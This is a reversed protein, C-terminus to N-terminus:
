SKAARRRALYTRIMEVARAEPGQPCGMARWLAFQIAASLLLTGTGIAGGRLMALEIGERAPHVWAYGTAFLAASVLMGTAAIRGLGGRTARWGIDGIRRLQIVFLACEFFNVCISTAALLEVRHTFRTVVVLLLVRMAASIAVVEFNQRVRGEALLITTCVFSFPAFLCALTFISILPQAGVWKAGLLIDVVYGSTASLAIALPVIPLMLLAVIMLAMGVVGGDRGRARAVGAFLAAAAPAVLETIPLIAIEMGLLYTGLTAAGLVPGIIVADTRDWVMSALGSMWTWFSFGILERWGDLAFHPRFPHVAYTMVLRALKGIVIGAILAWYSHLTVALIITVAVQLMRPIALLRFEMDFRMNRRFEVIAINEFGALVSGAALPMLLLFLRPEHFWISAPWALLVTIAATALGRLLQLSFAANLLREEHDLRRVLADILGMTSISDIAASLVTAMAVLGFDAPTLIRALVLTSGLGILRTAMRWAVMWAAGLITRGTLSEAPAPEPMLPPEPSSPIDIPAESM